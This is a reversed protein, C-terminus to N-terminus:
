ISDVFDRWRNIQAPDNEALQAGVWYQSPNLTPGSWVRKLRLMVDPEHMVVEFTSENLDAVGSLLLRCGGYSVDVLRAEPHESRVELSALFKRPWQRITLGLARYDGLASRVADLFTPADARATVFGFQRLRAEREVEGDLSTHTILVPLHPHEDRSEAAFQLGSLPGLEAAAILLDPSVSRLLKTASKYSSAPAVLYGEDGLIRDLRRLEGEDAHVLLVLAPM